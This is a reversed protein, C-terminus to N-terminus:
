AIQNIHFRLGTLKELFQETEAVKEVVEEVTLRGATDLDPRGDITALVKQGNKAVIQFQLKM